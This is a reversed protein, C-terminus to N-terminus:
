VLVFKGILEYLINEMLRQFTGPANCLGSPMRNFVFHGFESTFPTQFKDKEDIEIQWYGSFLDITSFYRAGHLYDLTDDIRPVGINTL